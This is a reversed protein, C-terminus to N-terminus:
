VGCAFPTVTVKQGTGYKNEASHIGYTGETCQEPAKAKRAESFIMMSSIPLLTGPCEMFGHLSAESCM